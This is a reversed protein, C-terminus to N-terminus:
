NVLLFTWYEKTISLWHALCGRNIRLNSTYWCSPTVSSRFHFLIPWMSWSLVIWSWPSLLLGAGHIYTCARTYIILQNADHAVRSITVREKRMILDHEGKLAQRRGIIGGIFLRKNPLLSVDWLLFAARWWVVWGVLWGVSRGVLRGVSRRDIGERSISSQLCAISSFM